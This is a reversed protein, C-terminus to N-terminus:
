TQQINEVSRQLRFKIGSKGRIKYFEELMEWAASFRANVGAKQWFKIDWDDDAQSIKVIREAIFPKKKM